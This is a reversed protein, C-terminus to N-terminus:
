IKVRASNKRASSLIAEVIGIDRMGEKGPVKMDRNEIIALADNDMQIAQQNCRCPSLYTGDSTRGKVGSYSQFPNLGYSGRDCKINLDNVGSAYTVMGNGFVGDPFELDFYTIENAGNNFLEPRENEHRATVAIPELGSGYRLANIPYVGMDYIAGGGMAGNLRWAGNAGIRFGASASVKKIAGFPKAKTWDMIKNTNKEHQMRYGIALKVKNINCAEIIAKCESVTMAMPKECFVHKGANATIIAYKAHLFTPTVIYLIDIEPNNAVEHMNEYNYINYDKIGYKEKWVPIKEPSGTVIGKLEIHDTKQLAPALQNKSYSGLGVLAVGLKKAKSGINILPFPVLTSALLLGSSKIFNRRNSM